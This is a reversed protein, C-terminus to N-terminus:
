KTAEFREDTMQTGVSISSLETRLSRQFKEESHFGNVIEYQRSKLNWFVPKFRRRRSPLYQIEKGLAYRYRIGGLTGLCGTGVQFTRFAM